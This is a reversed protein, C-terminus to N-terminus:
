REVAEVADYEGIEGRARVLEAGERYETFAEHVLRSVPSENQHTALQMVGDLNRARLQDRLAGVFKVSKNRVSRLAFSRDVIVWLSYVSCIALLVNVAKALPAMSHWMEILNFSQM